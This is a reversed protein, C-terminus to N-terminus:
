TDLEKILFDVSLSARTLENKQESQSFESIIRLADKIYSLTREKSEDRMRETAKPDKLDITMYPSNLVKADFIDEPFREILRYLTKVPVFNLAEYGSEKSSQFKKLLDTESASVLKGVTEEVEGTSEHICNVVEKPKSQLAIIMKERLITFANSARDQLSLRDIKEEPMCSEVLESYVEVIDTKNDRAKLKESLYQLLLMKPTIPFQAIIPHNPDYVFDCDIGESHFFCPKRKGKYYIKGKNLEYVRVNLPATHGYAYNRNSLQSVQNARLILDDLQSTDEVKKNTNNPNSTPTDSIITLNGTNEEENKNSHDDTNGSPIDNIYDDINDSPTDGTNVTTTLRSGGTSQKQDEEQAAKWWKSDDLYESKGKRFENAYQKSLDNPAFLFKTGKDVRRYASTLLGLPSDNKDAFGMNKRSKPLFPGVGCVAEVTQLWSLDTRDFDNKQYTPLLYDVNLEGVIRGGVTSGLEVPYQIEKQGTLPNEYQFLSKDSTLIKRGKRIFDIGFDNPDAYRQIGLWGTLRKSREIIHDPLLKGNQEDNYYPEAEDPSLYCNRSLDFLGDGLNRDIPIRAPINQDNYRVYRSESWVCHKNSHLQKGKVFINIDHNDLLPSYVAELRRRIDNEKNTLENHIGQRLRKITIKTGQEDFNSKPIHIVPANFRKTKILQEFDIKIGIWEKDGKRTSLIMTEEGLRATSINFGVGFLGLNNVPDNSSYGARVADQIQQLSMGSANDSIEISRENAAVQNSSWNILITNDESENNSTKDSLFADISNDILEAFCQWTQFPIDGLTRLIRPTPTIDLTPNKTM